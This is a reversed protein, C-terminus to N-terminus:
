AKEEEKTFKDTMIDIHDHIGKHNNYQAWQCTHGFNLTFTGKTTAGNKLTERTQDLDVKPYGPPMKTTRLDNLNNFMTGYDVNCNTYEGELWRVLDCYIFDFCLLACGNKRVLNISLPASTPTPLELLLSQKEERLAQARWIAYADFPLVALRLSVQEDPTLLDWVFHCVHYVPTDETITSCDQKM